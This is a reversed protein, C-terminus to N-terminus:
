EYKVGKSFDKIKSIIRGWPNKEIEKRGAEKAEEICKLCPEVIFFYSDGVFVKFKLELGLSLKGEKKHKACELYISSDKELYVHNLEETMKNYEM